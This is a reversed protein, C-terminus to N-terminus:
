DRVSARQLRDRIALWAEEAPVAEVLIRDPHQSDLYRLNTYLAQAYTVPDAAAHVWLASGALNQPRARRALVGVVAERGLRALYSEFSDSSVLEVPSLPAYHSALTGPARVANDTYGQPLMVPRRLVAEVAERGLMGPRLIRIEDGSLDIITSEVGVQSEGGDLVTALESGFDARVHAATTPSLRGFRNASPAAVGGGFTELLRLAVPHAPIRLGVTNQGGTVADIARASRKLVLTMPGPWFAKGLTWAAEPIEVAWDAIQGLSALHVIVPHNRPRGKLAYLKELAEPNEADAGLGYVTETPFAVLDGAKLLSAAALIEAETSFRDPSLPPRASEPSTM